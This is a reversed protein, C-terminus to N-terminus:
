IGPHVYYDLKLSYYNASTTNNTIRLVYSTNDKLIWEDSRGAEGGASKGSGVKQVEIRTGTVTTTAGQYIALFDVYTAANRNRNFIPIATGNASVTVGEFFEVTGEAEVSVAGKLHYQKVAQQLGPETETLGEDPVVILIDISDGNGLEGVFTAEYSDGCHIEHHEVPITLIVGKFINDGLIRHTNGYEDVVINTVRLTTNADETIDDGLEDINVAGELDVVITHPDIKTGEHNAKFYRPGPASINLGFDAM